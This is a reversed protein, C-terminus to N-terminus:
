IIRRYQLYFASLQKCEAQEERRKAYSDEGRGIEFEERGGGGSGRAAEEQERHARSEKTGRKLFVKYTGSLFKGVSHGANLLRYHCFCHLIIDTPHGLLLASNLHPPLKPRQFEDVIFSEEKILM